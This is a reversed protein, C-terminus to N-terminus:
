YLLPLDHASAADGSLHFSLALPHHHLLRLYELPDGQVQRLLLLLLSIHRLAILLRAQPRRPAAAPLAQHPVQHRDLRPMPLRVPRLTRRRDQRVVVVRRRALLFRVRALLDAQLRVM